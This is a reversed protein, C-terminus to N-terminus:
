FQELNIFAICLELQNKELVESKLMPLSSKM